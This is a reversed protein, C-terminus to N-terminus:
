DERQYVDPIGDADADVTEAEAIRRYVRNRGTLVLAALGASVLSAVFVGPDGPFAAVVEQVTRVTLESVGAADFAGALRPSLARVTDPPMTLLHTIARPLDGNRLAEAVPAVAPGLHEFATASQQPDRFG